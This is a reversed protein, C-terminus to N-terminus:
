RAITDALPAGPQVAILYGGGSLDTPTTIEGTIEGTAIDIVHIRGEGGQSVFGTAGDPSIATARSEAEWPSAGAVPGDALPPLPVTHLTQGFTASAPDADVILATDGDPHIAHFLAANGALAFRYVLGPALERRTVEGTELDVLYLDNEYDGWEAEPATRNAVYTILHSGAPSLRAFYARGGERGDAEWPWTTEYTLTEPSFAVVDVGDDTAMYLHSRAHDIAEGHGFAGTAVTATPTAAGDVFATAPYTEVRLLADNRHFITLPDGGLMVGAEGAEVDLAQTSWDALDVLTLPADDNAAGVIVHTIAPDVAFHSVADPVSARGTIALTDGSLTVAILEDAADDILLLRGDPLPLFGAHANISVGELTDLLDGNTLSFAHLAAAAPDAVYLAGAAAPATPTAQALAPAGPLSVLLLALLAALLRRM